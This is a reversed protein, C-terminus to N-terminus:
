CGRQDGFVGGSVALHNLLRSARSKLLFTFYWVEPGISVLEVRKTNRSQASDMTM